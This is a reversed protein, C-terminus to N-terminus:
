EWIKKVTREYMKKFDELSSEGMDKIGKLYCFRYVTFFKSLYETGKKGCDDNDLASIVIEVGSKKLKEIHTDSAKWGLLAVIDENKKMHYLNQLMKLRDLYGEVVFVYKKNGYRGALTDSRRFGENYLYKRRAEVEPIDTRCVWGKFRGNDTIPFIIRYDRSYNFKAHCKNLTDSYFGRERMYGAVIKEEESAPASWDNQSLGNYYDYAELYLQRNGVKKKQGPVFELRTESQGHLINMYERIVQLDNKEKEACRVFDLANGNVGCGFCFFRGKELDIMMSPNVDGHFPCVIKIKSHSASYLIKYHSLIKYLERGGCQFSFGDM